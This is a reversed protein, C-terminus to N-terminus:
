KKLEQIKAKQRKIRRKARKNKVTIRHQKSM